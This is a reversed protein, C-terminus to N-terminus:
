WTLIPERKALRQFAGEAAGHEPVHRQDEVLADEGDIAGLASGGHAVSAGVVADEEDFGAGEFAEDGGVGFLLVARRPDCTCDVGFQLFEGEGVCADFGLKQTLGWQLGDAGLKYKQAPGDRGSHM